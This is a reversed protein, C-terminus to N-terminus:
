SPHFFNCLQLGSCGAAGGWRFIKNVWFLVSIIFALLTLIFSAAALGTAWLFQNRREGLDAIASALIPFQVQHTYKM